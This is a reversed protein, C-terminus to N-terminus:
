DRQAKIALAERFCNGPVIWPNGKLDIRGSSVGKQLCAVLLDPDNICQKPERDDTDIALAMDQAVSSVMIPLDECPVEHAQSAKCLLDLVSARKIHENNPRKAPAPASFKKPQMAAASKQEVRAHRPMPPQMNEARLWDPEYVSVRPPTRSTKQINEASKFVLEVAMPLRQRRVERNM